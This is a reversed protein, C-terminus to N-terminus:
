SQVRTGRGTPRPANHAERAERLTARWATAVKDPDEICRSFVALGEDETLAGAATMEAALQATSLRRVNRDRALRKGTRDELVILAAGDVEAALVTTIEGSNKDPHDHEDHSLDILRRAEDVVSTPLGVAGEPPWRTQLCLLRIEEERRRKLETEVDTTIRLKSGLYRSLAVCHGAEAFAVFCATDVFVREWDGTREM